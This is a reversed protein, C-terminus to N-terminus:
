PLNPYSNLWIRKQNSDRPHELLIKIKWQPKGIRWTSNSRTRSMHSRMHRRSRNFTSHKELEIWTPAPFRCMGIANDIVFDKRLDCRSVHSWPVIIPCLSMNCIVFSMARPWNSDAAWRSIILRSCVGSGIPIFLPSVEVISFPIKLIKLRRKIKTNAVILWPDSTSIHKVKCFQRQCRYLLNSVYRVVVRHGVSIRTVLCFLMCSSVLFHLLYNVTRLHGQPPKSKREQV